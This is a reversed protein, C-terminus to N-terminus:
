NASAIAFIIWWLVLLAAFAVFVVAAVACIGVYRRIWRAHEVLETLRQEPLTLRLDPSAPLQQRDMTAVEQSLAPAKAADPGLSM